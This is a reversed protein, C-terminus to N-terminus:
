ARRARRGGFPPALDYGKRPVVAGRVPRRRWWCHCAGCVWWGGDPEAIAQWAGCEPCEPGDGRIAVRYRM